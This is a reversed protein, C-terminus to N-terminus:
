RKVLLASGEYLLYLPLFVVALTFPDGTPTIIAALVLLAVVAHRRYRKFFSRRLIGASSLAWALLPMEFVIGMVMVMMLFTDMYSDFSITNPVLASVHYDALFRLTVPFVVFYGVAVGVYFMAIGLWFARRAGRREREYLGPSVFQWLLYIIIPASLVVAVWFSISMHIFFQSALNINIIEAKWGAATFAPLASWRSTMWEFFRYLVFDGSCPAMIVTDFIAPMLAFLAVALVVVVIAIRWLVGRLEELHEWFSMQPLQEDRGEEAM